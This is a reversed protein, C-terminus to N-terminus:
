QFLSYFTINFLVFCVFILSWSHVNCQDSWCTNVFFFISIDDINMFGMSLSHLIYVGASTFNKMCGSRHNRINVGHVVFFLIVKRWCVLYRWIYEFTIYWLLLVFLILGIWGGVDGFNEKYSKKELNYIIFIINIISKFSLM